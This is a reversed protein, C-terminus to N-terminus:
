PAAWPFARATEWPMRAPVGLRRRAIEVYTPNLEIGICNRGFEQCVLGTTGAGFRKVISSLHDPPDTVCSDFSEAAMRPLLEACDGQLITM